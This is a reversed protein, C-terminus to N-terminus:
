AEKAAKELIDRQRQIRREHYSDLRRRMSKHVDAVAINTLTRLERVADALDAIEGVRTSLLRENIHVIAAVAQSNGSGDALSAFIAGQRTVVEIKSAPPRLGGFHGVRDALESPTMHSLLGLLLHANWQYLDILSGPLPQWIRFGGGPDAEMIQEGVLRHIAERVPTKSSRLRDATAALELKVGVSFKGALYENKLARYVRDQTVADAASM